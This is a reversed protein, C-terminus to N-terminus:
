ENLIVEKVLPPFEILELYRIYDVKLHEGLKVRRELLSDDYEEICEVDVIKNPNYTSKSDVLVEDWKSIPPEYKFKYEKFLKSTDITNFDLDLIISNEENLGIEKYVPLDTVIVPKGLILNEVVSYCYAERDSLQVLFDCDNMFNIIDLRPEMYVINPNKIADIDDTFIYWLYPIGLNNLIEGLRIIRDKGKESTLRTASILKLVRKPEDIYIPNYILKCERGFQKEVEDCIVQSVGYLDDIKPHLTENPQPHGHFIEGYREAEVNDIIDKSYNFFAKKCKIKQGTFKIVRVLKRLRRIQKEDGTKYIITIDKKNYLLIM